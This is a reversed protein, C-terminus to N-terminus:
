LLIMVILTCIVELYTRKKKSEVKMNQGKLLKAGAPEAIPQIVAASKSSRTGVERSGIAFLVVTFIM